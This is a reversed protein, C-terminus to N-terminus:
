RLRLIFYQLSHPLKLFFYLIITKFDQKVFSLRMLDFNINGFEKMSLRANKVALCSFIYTKKILYSVVFFNDYYKNRLVDEQIIRFSLFIHEVNRKEYYMSLSGERIFYIYTPKSIIVMSSAVMAVQYTWLFDEHILKPRFFLNNSVIFDKKLLKNCAMDYIYDRFYAEFIEIGTYKGIKNACYLTKDEKQVGGIIIEEGNCNSVLTEICDLTIADDSDLFYIYDGTAVNIGTNRAESLGKNVEHNIVTIRKENPNNLVFSDIVSISNDPTCDNVFIMEINFYTQSVVSLLCREIYLEVNYVPIVISVKTSSNM